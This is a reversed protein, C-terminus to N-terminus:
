WRMYETQILRVDGPLDRVAGSDPDYLRMPAVPQFVGIRTMSRNVVFRGFSGQFTMGESVVANLGPAEVLDTGDSRATMFAPANLHEKKRSILIRGNPWGSPAGKSYGAPLPIPTSTISDLSVTSTHLTYVPNRRVWAVRGDSTFISSAFLLLTDGSNEMDAVIRGVKRGSKLDLVVLEEPAISSEGGPDPGHLREYAPSRAEYLLLHRGDPAVATPFAARARPTQHIVRESRGSRGVLLVQQTWTAINTRTVLLQQSDAWGTVSGGRADFSRKSGDETSVLEYTTPREPEHRVILVHKGDPALLLGTGSVAAVKRDMGTSFDLIRLQWVFQGGEEYNGLHALVDAVGEPSEGCALAGMLLAAGLPNITPRM